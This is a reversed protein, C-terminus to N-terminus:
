RAALALVEALRAPMSLFPSHDSELTFVQECPSATHMRRQLMPSVAHDRLCEIYIRRVRGFHIGTLHLPTSVPLNPDPGLRAQAWAVDEDSCENYLIDKVMDARIISTRRDESAVVGPRLRADTDQRLWSGLTEEDRLLFAALFVLRDIRDPIREAAESIAIGGASHGVLVVPGPQAEVTEVVRRAYSALTCDSPPTRDSGHGPLDIAIVRHGTKEILPTLKEWCWAGHWAGHVLVFTSM